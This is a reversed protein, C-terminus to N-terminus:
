ATKKKVTPLEHHGFTTRAAELSTKAGEMTKRYTKEAERLTKSVIAQEDPGSLLDVLIQDVDEPHLEVMGTAGTYRREIQIAGSGARLYDALYYPNVQKPDVRIVTVHGDPVAPWESDYVCAKGMTGTGTSSLLVDGKQIHLSKM